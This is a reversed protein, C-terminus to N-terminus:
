GTWISLQTKYFHVGMLVALTLVGACTLSLRIVALADEDREPMVIANAFGLTALPTLITVLATFAALAGFAEPGYFRTLFPAFALSIAQAAAVGTAVAAVNRVFPSRRFTQAHECLLTLMEGSM